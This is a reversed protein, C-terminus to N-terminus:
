AAARGLGPRPTRVHAAAQLAAGCLGGHRALPLPVPSEGLLFAPAVVCGCLLDSMMANWAQHLLRDAAGQDRYLGPFGGRQLAKAMGQRRVEASAAMVDTRNLFPEATSLEPGCHDGGVQQVAANIAKAARGVQGIAQSTITVAYCVM